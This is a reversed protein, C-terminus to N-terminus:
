KILEKRILESNQQQMCNFHKKPCEQFGIKSCPRCNLGKVEHISYSSREKPRYPYMGLEPVTNGWVSVIPVDFCAAIHMLGTDSSLLVKSQAVVSASQQLNFEGCLNFISGNVTSLIDDGKTRDEKGGLLVIPLNLDDLIEKLKNLPIQKTGFKAGVAVAVFAGTKLGFQEQIDIKNKEAIEFCGRSPQTEILDRVSNLYRDVIHVDPLKNIKFKVLLWKSINLKKFTRAPRRLKLKLSRTRLNNHLDVILDFQQKRLEETVEDIDKSMCHLRDLYPNNELLGAYASKTLFHIERNTDAEKLAQIVPTTLVIDGISSFRVILIKVPCIYLIVKNAHLSNTTSEFLFIEDGGDPLKRQM